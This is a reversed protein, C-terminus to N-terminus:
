ALGREELAALIAQANAAVTGLGSLVLEPETPPEYPDDEGTMGAMGGAAFRAYLGKVDRERCQEIPTAIYVEVFPVGAAEHMRRVDTRADAYPSVVAALAKVGHYALRSAVWGIRRVNIDRDARSYGLGQSLHLRVDDGDLLEVRHGGSDLLAALERSITTKGASPLGTLWVTAGKFGLAAARDEPTVAGDHWRTNETKM